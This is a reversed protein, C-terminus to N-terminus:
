IEPPPAPAEVQYAPIINEGCRGSAELPQGGVTQAVQGTTLNIVRNHWLEIRGEALRTYGAEFYDRYGGVTVNAVAPPPSGHTIRQQLDQIMNGRGTFCTLFGVHGGQVLRRKMANVLEYCNELHPTHRGLFRLVYNGTPIGTDDLERARRVAYQYEGYHIIWQRDTFEREVTPVTTLGLDRRLARVIHETLHEQNMAEVVQDNWSWTLVVNDTSLHFLSSMPSFFEERSLCAGHRDRCNGSFFYGSPVGTGHGVFYINDVPLGQPLGNLTTTADQVGYTHNIIAQALAIQPYAHKRGAQGLDPSALCEALQKYADTPDLAGFRRDPCGGDGCTYFTVTIPQVDVAVEASLNDEQPAEVTGALEKSRGESM